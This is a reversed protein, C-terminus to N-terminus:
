CNVLIRYRILCYRIVWCQLAIQEINHFAYCQFLGVLVYKLVMSMRDATWETRAGKMLPPM